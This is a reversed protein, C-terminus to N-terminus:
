TLQVIRTVSSLTGDFTGKGLPAAVLLTYPGTSVPVTSVIPGSGNRRCSLQAPIRGSFAAAGSVTRAPGIPAECQLNRHGAPGRRGLFLRYRGKLLGRAHVTIAGTHKASAPASLSAALAPAAFVALVALALLASRLPHRLAKVPNSM